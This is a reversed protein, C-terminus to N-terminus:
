STAEATELAVRVAEERLCHSNWPMAGLDNRSNLEDITEAAELLRHAFTM